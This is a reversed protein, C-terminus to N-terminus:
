RLGVTRKQGGKDVSERERETKEPVKRGEEAQM